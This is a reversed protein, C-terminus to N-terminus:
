SVVSVDLGPRPEHAERRLRGAAQQASWDPWTEILRSGSPRMCVHAPTGRLIADVFLGAMLADGSDDPHFGDSSYNAPDYARGDCLLDM